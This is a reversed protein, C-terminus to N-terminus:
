ICALAENISVLISSLKITSLTKILTLNEISGETPSILYNLSFDRFNFPM